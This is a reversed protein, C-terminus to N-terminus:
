HTSSDAEWYNIFRLSWYSYINYDILIDVISLVSKYTSM